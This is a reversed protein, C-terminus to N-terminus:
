CYFSNDPPPSGYQTGLSYGAKLGFRVGTQANVSGIFLFSIFLIATFKKM